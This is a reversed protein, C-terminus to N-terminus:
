RMKIALNKSILDWVDFHHELLWDISAVTDFYIDEWDDWECLEHYEEAEEDTMSDLSRLYPKYDNISIHVYYAIDNKYFKVVIPQTENEQPNYGVLEYDYKGIKVKVGYLLRATLDKLLLQENTFM